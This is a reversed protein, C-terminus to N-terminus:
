QRKFPICRNVKRCYKLYEAGYLSKLWQEETHILVITMILWDIPFVLLLWYNHWLLVIGFLLIMWGSYIPNRVWAYIGDTKLRNHAIYEDIDSLVAGFYWILVGALICVFAALRFVWIWMGAVLGSQLLNGSLLIGLLGVVAMGLVMYPGVGFIPLKQETHVFNKM